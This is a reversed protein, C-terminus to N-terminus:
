REPHVDARLIPLHDDTFCELAEKERQQPCNLLFVAILFAGILLDSSVTIVM